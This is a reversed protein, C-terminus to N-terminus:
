RAIQISEVREADGNRLRVFYSGNDLHSLDMQAQEVGAALQQEAVTRGALDIVEVTSPSSGEAQFSVNLANVVPNPFLEMDMAPAALRVAATDPTTFTDLPSFSSAVIEPSIECAARTRIIYSTGPDLNRGNISVLISTSALRARKFTGTTDDLAAVQVEIREWLSDPGLITINAFDYPTGLTYTIDVGTPPPCSQAQVGVALLGVFAGLLTLKRIM